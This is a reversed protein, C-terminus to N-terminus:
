RAYKSLIVIDSPKVKHLKQSNQLTKYVISKKTCLKHKMLM